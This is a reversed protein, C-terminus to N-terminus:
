GWMCLEMGKGGMEWKWVVGGHRCCRAHDVEGGVGNPVAVNDGHHVEFEEEDENDEDGGHEAHGGGDEEGAEELSLGKVVVNDGDDLTENRPDDEGGAKSKLFIGM